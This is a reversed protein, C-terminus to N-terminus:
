QEAEPRHSTNLQRRREALGHELRAVAMMTPKLEAPADDYNRGWQNNLRPLMGRPVLEWNSADTNSKDGLCKLAFGDPVPGNVNEWEIRHVFKWRSQMPMGDHIKRQLYGSEHMRESGIPQYIEAAVGQRSGKKFQTRASNANFPMKKGKNQPASGKAFYGTRGTKWGQRKRLGHLDAATVDARGFAAGFARHFEGIVMTRNSELWRMEARSYAIHTRRTRGTM